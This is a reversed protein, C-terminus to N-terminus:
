VEREQETGKNVQKRERERKAEQYEGTYVAVV